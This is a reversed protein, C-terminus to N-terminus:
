PALHAWIEDFDAIRVAGREVFTAPWTLQPDHFCNDLIFLKRQQLLAHRGLILSGSTNGAEVIVAAETMASMTANRERFFLRNSQPSQHSHRIIPVQSIALFQDAIRQQLRQNASPYCGTIPTGLVAITHGGADIATEHAVTDIGQALGSVVTFGAKVFRRTLKAARRVGTDSPHRTGAIAVCRSAALNWKGLFYLLELPHEADRLKAPYEGDGHVRIGVHEIGAARISGLAMQSYRGADTNSVFDSPLSGPHKGFTDALSKFTTDERAWLAEYAGLERAPLIARAEVDAAPLNSFLDHM